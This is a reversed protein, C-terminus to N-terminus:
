HALSSGANRTRSLMHSDPIYGKARQVIKSM